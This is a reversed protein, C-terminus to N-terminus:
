YINYRELNLFLPIAEGDAGKNFIQCGQTFLGILLVLIIRTM